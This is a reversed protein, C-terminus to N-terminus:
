LDGEVHERIWEAIQEFTHPEVKAVIGDNKWGDNMSALISQLTRNHEDTVSHAEAEWPGLWTSPCINVDTLIDDLTQGGLDYRPVGMVEALVGLCCHRYETVDTVEHGHEIDERFEALPKFEDTAYTRASCLTEKGQIYAGGTLAACWENVKIQPINVKFKM